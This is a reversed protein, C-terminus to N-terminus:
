WSEFAKSSSALRAESAKAAQRLDNNNEGKTPHEKDSDDGDEGRPAEVQSPMKVPKRLPLTYARHVGLAPLVNDVHVEVGRWRSLSDHRFGGDFPLAVETRRPMFDEAHGQAAAHTSSQIQIRVSLVDPQIHMVTRCESKSLSVVVSWPELEASMPLIWVEDHIVVAAQLAVKLGISRNIPSSTLLAGVHSLDNGHSKLRTRIGIELGGAFSRLLDSTSRTEVSSLAELCLFDPWTWFRKGTQTEAGFLYADRLM